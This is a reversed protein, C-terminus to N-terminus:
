ADKFYFTFGLTAGYRNFNTGDVRAYGYNFEPTLAFTKGLRFEYGVNGVLSLGGETNSVNIPGVNTQADVVAFGVGPRVFFGTEQVFYQASFNVTYIGYDVNNQDVISNSTEGMLILDESLGGGIRIGGFFAGESDVNEPDLVGGGLNFGIFFGKRANMEASAHTAFTTVFILTM